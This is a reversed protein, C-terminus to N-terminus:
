LKPFLHRRPERSQPRVILGPNKPLYQRQTLPYRRQIAASTLTRIM